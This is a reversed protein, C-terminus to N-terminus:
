RDRPCGSTRRRGRCCCRGCCRRSGARAGPAASRRARDPPSAALGTSARSVPAPTLVHGEVVVPARAAAPAELDQARGGRTLLLGHAGDAASAVHRLDEPRETHADRACPQVRAHELARRAPPWLVLRRAPASRPPRLAIPVSASAGGPAAGSPPVVCSWLLSTARMVANLSPTNAMAMVSSARGSARGRPSPTSTHASSCRSPGLKRLKQMLKTTIPAYQIPWRPIKRRTSRLSRRSSQSM